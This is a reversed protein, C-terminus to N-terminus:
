PEGTGAFFSLFLLGAILYYMLVLWSPICKITNGCALAIIDEIAPLVPLLVLPQDM